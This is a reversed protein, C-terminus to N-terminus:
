YHIVNEQQRIREIVPIAEPSKFYDLTTQPVLKSLTDYDGNQLALRVNSASIPTDECTKRPVVICEIGQEPLKESMIRNYIGTVLSTPEEGVYRRTIGLVKAIQTFVTLDLMAHSEIVANEDKQFYSPFTANSIIYPGSDHYCINKLHATGKMVLQKRIKFPVLSADESVIFLHLLDNEDAAKEVLYQHGLTFPNANMVLAAIKKTPTEATLGEPLADKAFTRLYNQFGTKRNEMFVIQGDIRAIEYFGLDGFFKASNCKTYLFLHTNGRSFQFEILHSVISNMLGEGQHEHSVAFCRLTNGFCSGTAIIHMEDDHMGCTYDLNADRRIGESILLADVEDNARKDSPYIQSIYYDSM